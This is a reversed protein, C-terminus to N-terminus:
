VDQLWICCCHALRKTNLLRKTGSTGQRWRHVKLSGDWLWYVPSNWTRASSWCDGRVLNCQTNPVTINLHTAISWVNWPKISFPMSTCNSKRPLIHPPHGLLATPLNHTVQKSPRYHGTHDVLETNPHLWIQPHIPMQWWHFDMMPIEPICTRFSVLIDHMILPKWPNHSPFPIMWIALLWDRVDTCQRWLISCQQKLCRMQSYVHVWRSGEQGLPNTNKYAREPGETKGHGWVPTEGVIKAKSQVVRCSLPTLQNSFGQV